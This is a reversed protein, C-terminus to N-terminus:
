LRIVQGEWNSYWIEKPGFIDLFRSCEDCPAAMTLNGAMDLRLNIVKCRSLEKIPWPFERIADLESHIFPFKYKHRRAFTHTRYQNQGTCIVKNRRLVFTFHDMYGYKFKALERAKNHLSFVNM